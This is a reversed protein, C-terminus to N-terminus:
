FYKSEPSHPDHSYGGELWFPGHGEGEINQFFFERKKVHKIYQTAM